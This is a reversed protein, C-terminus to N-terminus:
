SMSLTNQLERMANDIKDIELQILIKYPSHQLSRELSKKQLEYNFIQESLEEKYNSRTVARKVPKYCFNAPLKQSLMVLVNIQQAIKNSLHLAKASDIELLRLRNINTYVENIAIAPQWDITINFLHKPIYQVYNKPWVPLKWMLEPLREALKDCYSEISM